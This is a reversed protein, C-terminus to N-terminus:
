SVNDNPKSEAAAFPVASSAGAIATSGHRIKTARPFTKGRGKPQLVPMKGTEDFLCGERNPVHLSPLRRSMEPQFGFNSETASQQFLKHTFSPPTELEIFHPLSEAERRSFSSYDYENNRREHEPQYRFTIAVRM